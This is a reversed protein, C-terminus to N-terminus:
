FLMFFTYKHYTATSPPLIATTKPQLPLSPKAPGPLVSGSAYSSAAGAGITGARTITNVKLLNIFIGVFISLKSVNEM